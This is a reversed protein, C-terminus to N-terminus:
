PFHFVNNRKWYKVWFYGWGIGYYKLQKGSDYDTWMSSFCDICDNSSNLPFPAKRRLSHNLCFPRSFTQLFNSLKIIFKTNQTILKVIFSQHFLWNWQCPKQYKLHDHLQSIWTFRRFEAFNVFVRFIHHFETSIKDFVHRYLM